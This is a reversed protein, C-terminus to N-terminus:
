IPIVIGQRNHGIAMDYGDEAEIDGDYDKPIQCFKRAQNFYLKHKYTLVWVAYDRRWSFFFLYDM